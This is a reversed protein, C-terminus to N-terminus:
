KIPLCKLHAKLNVLISKLILYLGLHSLLASSSASALLIVKVVM